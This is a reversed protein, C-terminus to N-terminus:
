GLIKNKLILVEFALATKGAIKQLRNLQTGLEKGGDVYFVAVVRGMMMLPILLSMEPGGGGLAKLIRQNGPTDLLPGLYFNKTDAVIKLTSLEDLPLQFDEFGTIAKKQASGRWGAAMKGKIMFLAVREFHQGVHSIVADAITDRDKADALESLMDDLSLPGEAAVAAPEPEPAAPAQRVPEPEPQLEELELIEPEEDVPAVPQVPSPLEIPLIEALDGWELASAQPNTAPAATEVMPSAATEPPKGARGPEVSTGADRKRMGSSGSLQIYRVERKVGYYKELAQLLRLESCVFPKIIYGTIFSIADVAALDGPDWMAVTLRKKELSLPVIKYEEAIDAPILKIIDPTISSLQEIPVYPIELQKSLCRLLDLEDVIGMEVLNTGLRGGFIVQAKLAEELQKPSLLGESILLDGIKQTM